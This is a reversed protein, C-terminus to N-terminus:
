VYLLNNKFCAASSSFLSLRYHFVQIIYPFMGSPFSSCIGGRFHGCLVLGAPPPPQICTLGQCPRSHRPASVWPLDKNESPQSKKLISLREICASPIFKTHCKEEQFMKGPGFGVAQARAGSGARVDRDRGGGLSMGAWARSRTSRIFFLGTLVPGPTM